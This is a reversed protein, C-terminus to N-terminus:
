TPDRGRSMAHWFRAKALYADRGERPATIAYHKSIARLANLLTTDKQIADAHSNLRAAERPNIV